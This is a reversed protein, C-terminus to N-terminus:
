GYVQIEISGGELFPRSIKPLNQEILVMLINEISTNVTDETESMQRILDLSALDLNLIMETTFEFSDAFDEVEPQYGDLSSDCCSVHFSYDLQNDEIRGILEKIIENM